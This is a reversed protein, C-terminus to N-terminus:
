FETAGHSDAETSAQTRLRVVKVKRGMSSQMVENAGNTTAEPHSTPQDTNGDSGTNGDDAGVSHQLIRFTQSPIHGGVYRIDAAPEVSGPTAAADIADGSPSSAANPAAARYRRQQQQQQQQQRQPTTQRIDRRVPQHHSPVPPTDADGGTLHQLMRFSRSPINKGTYRISKEDYQGVDPSDDPFLTHRISTTDIESGGTHAPAAAVMVRPVSSRSSPTESRSRMAGLRAEDDSSMERAPSASAESGTLNQLMRFSRSPINRGTYRISKQDYQGPEQQDDSGGTVNHRISTTDIESQGGGRATTNATTGTWSQLRQFSKSPIGSTDSRNLGSFKVEDDASPERPPSRAETPPRIPTRPKPQDIGHILKYVASQTIDSKNDKNPIGVVASVHGAGTQGKLAEVVSEGSYLGLPSNFQLNAVVAADAGPSAAAAGGSGVTPAYTAPSSPVSRVRPPPTAEEFQPMNLMHQYRPLTCVPARKRVRDRQAQIDNVDAVYAFPKKDKGVRSAMNIVADPVQPQPSQAVARGGGASSPQQHSSSYSSPSNDTAAGSYYDALGTLDDNAVTSAGGNTYYPTYTSDSAFPYESTPQMPSFSGANNNNNNNNSNNYDIESSYQQDYRLPANQSLGVVAPSTVSLPSSGDYRSVGLQLMNGCDKITQMAQTHTLPATEVDGISSIVDGPNLGTAAISGATVRQVTLPLQFDRGGQLRFGWPVDDSPRQLWVTEAM